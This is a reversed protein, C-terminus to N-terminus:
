VPATESWFRRLLNTPVRRRYDATSRIDDIPAIESHWLTSPTTSRHAPHSCRAGDECARVVTPALAASRSGRRRARARRRRRGELDSARRAHRSESGSSGEVRPVEIAVILEDPQMVRRAIAPISNEHLSRREGDASRLVVIADAAAFCRCRTALRRRTRSTAASRAAIRSRCAASSGRRRSSCRCISPVVVAVSDADTYRRWRVSSSRTTACRSRAAARRAGLHDVFQRPTLTGFNLAVYLDTAGAIPTRREDRLM